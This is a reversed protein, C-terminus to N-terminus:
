SRLLQGRSRSFGSGPGQQGTSFFDRQGVVLDAPSGSAARANKWVMVRNNFADAVYLIPPSVSTDLAVGTPGNLEKGEVLNPALTTLDKKAHGFVRTPTPNLTVPSQAVAAAGAVVCITSFTLFLSPNQGHKQITKM